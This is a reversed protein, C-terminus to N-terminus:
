KKILYHTAQQNLLHKRNSREERKLWILDSNEKTLSILWDKIERNIIFLPNLNGM